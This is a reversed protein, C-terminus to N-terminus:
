YKPMKMTADTIGFGGLLGDQQAIAEVEFHGTIAGNQKQDFITQDHGPDDDKEIHLNESATTGVFLDVDVDTKTHNFNNDYTGSVGIEATAGTKGTVEGHYKGDAVKYDFSHDVGVTVSLGTKYTDKDHDKSNYDKEGYAKLKGANVTIKTKTCDGEFVIVKYDDKYPRSHCPDVFTKIKGIKKKYPDAGGMSGMSVSCDPLPQCGLGAIDGNNNVAIMADGWSSYLDLVARRVDWERLMNMYENWGQQHVRKIFPDSSHTYWHINDILKDFYKNWINAAGEVDANKAGRLRPIWSCNVQNLCKKQATEDPAHCTGLAADYDQLLNLDRIPIKALYPDMAAKLQATIWKVRQEFLLHVGHFLSYFKEYSNPIVVGGNEYTPTPRLSPLSQLKQTLDAPWKKNEQILLNNFRVVQIGVTLLDQLQTIFIPKADPYDPPTSNATPPPDQQSDDQPSNNDYTHNDNPNDESPKGANQMQQDMQVGGCFSTFAPSPGDGTDDDDDSDGGGGGLGSIQKALAQFLAATNGEQYAILALGELASSFNANKALVLNFYKKATSFDGYYASAWGINTKIVISENDMQEAYFFCQLAEMNKNDDRLLIGLDNIAWQTPNPMLVAKCILYESPYKPMGGLLMLVGTGALNISTDLIMKDLQTKTFPDWALKDSAEKYKATALSIIVNYETAKLKDANNLANRVPLGASVSQHVASQTQKAEANAKAMGAKAQNGTQEMMKAMDPIQVNQLEPHTKKMSDLKAQAQKMKEQYDPPLNQQAYCPVAVMGLCIITFFFFFFGPRTMIPNKFILNESDSLFPQKIM